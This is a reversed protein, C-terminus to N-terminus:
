GTASPTAWSGGPSTGRLRPHGWDKIACLYLKGEGTWHETIDTLWLENPRTATFNRQVLDDHAPPGPKKGNAGRKKGFVSWWGNDSCVRWVTRYCRDHGAERAEDALLRYGYEPDDRHAEFLANALYAEELEARPIPAALWRYYPQRAIKLVRCTLAVPIGDAALERM